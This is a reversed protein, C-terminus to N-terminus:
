MNQLQKTKRLHNGYRKLIYWIAMTENGFTTIEKHLESTFLLSYIDVNVRKKIHNIIQESSFARSYLFQAQCILESDSIDCETTDEIKQLVNMIRAMNGPQQKVNCNSVRMEMFSQYKNRIKPTPVYVCSFRSLIPPMVKETDHVVAFFRTKANYVEMSRRLASQADSTLMDANYLIVSKFPAHHNPVVTKAFFKLEERIFSIGKGYVCSVVMIWGKSICSSLSDTNYVYKLFRNLIYKKGCGPSGHFLINPVSNNDAYEYLNKVIQEHTQFKKHTISETTTTM